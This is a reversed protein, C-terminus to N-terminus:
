TGERVDIAAAAASAESLVPARSANPRPAQKTRVESLLFNSQHKYCAGRRRAEHFKACNVSLYIADADSANPGLADASLDHPGFCWFPPNPGTCPNNMWAEREEEGIADVDPYIGNVPMYGACWSPPSSGKCVLAPLGEYPRLARAIEESGNDVSSLSRAEARDPATFLSLAMLLLFKSISKYTSKSNM